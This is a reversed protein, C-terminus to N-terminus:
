QWISPLNGQAADKLIRLAQPEIRQHPVHKLVEASLKELGLLMASIRAAPKGPSEILFWKAGQSYRVSTVDAWRLSHRGKFMTGYDLGTATLTHRARYYDIILPVGLLALALFTLAVGPGGTKADFSLVAFAVFLGTCFVGAVLIGKPHVLTNGEAPPRLKKRSRALAGMVLAMVIGWILWHVTEEFM